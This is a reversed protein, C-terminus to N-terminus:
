FYYSYVTIVVIEFEEEVFIPVVQKIPYFSDYWYDNYQFNQKCQFRNKKASEREGNRITEIVEEVSVGREFCQALAHESLRINKNM